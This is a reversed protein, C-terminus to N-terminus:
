QGKYGDDMCHALTPNKLYALARLGMFSPVM